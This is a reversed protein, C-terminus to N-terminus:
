FRGRRFSRRRRLIKRLPEKLHQSQTFLHVIELLQSGLMILPSKGTVVPVDVLAGLLTTLGLEFGAHVSTHCRQRTMMGLRDIEPLSTQPWTHRRQSPLRHDYLFTMRYTSPPGLASLAVSSDYAEMSGQKRRNPALM